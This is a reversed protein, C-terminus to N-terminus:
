LRSTSNGSLRVLTVKSDQETPGFTALVEDNAADWCTATFDSEGRWQAHRINRLNKM